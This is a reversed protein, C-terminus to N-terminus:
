LHKCLYPTTTCTYHDYTYKFQPDCTYDYLHLQQSDCDDLIVPTTMSISSNHIVTMM